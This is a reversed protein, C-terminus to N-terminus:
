SVGLKVQLSDLAGRIQLDGEAQASRGLRAPRGDKARDKAGDKAGDSAEKVECDSPNNQFNPSPECESDAFNALM